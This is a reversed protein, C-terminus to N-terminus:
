KSLADTVENMRRQEEAETIDQQRKRKDLVMEQIYGLTYFHEVNDKPIKVLQLRWKKTNPVPEDGGCVIGKYNDAMKCFESLELTTLYDNNTPKVPESLLYHTAAHGIIRPPQQPQQYAYPAPQYYAPQQAESFAQVTSLLLSLPDM